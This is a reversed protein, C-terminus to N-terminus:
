FMVNLKTVQYVCVIYAHPPAVHRPWVLAGAEWIERQLQVLTKGWCVGSVELKTGFQATVPRHKGSGKPLPPGMRSLILRLDADAGRPTGCTPIGGWNGVSAAWDGAVRVPVRCHVM